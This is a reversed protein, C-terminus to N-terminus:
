SSAYLPCERFIIVVEGLRRLRPLEKCRSCAAKSLRAPRIPYDWRWWFAMGQHEIILGAPVDQCRSHILPVSRDSQDALTGASGALVIGIFIDLAGNAGSAVESTQHGCPLSEAPQVSRRRQPEIDFLCRWPRLCCSVTSLLRFNARRGSPLDIAHTESIKM